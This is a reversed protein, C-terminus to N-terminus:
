RRALIAKLAENPEGPNDLLHYADGATLTAPLAYHEAEFKDVLISLAELEDGEHSGLPAGWLEELRKLAATLEAKSRIPTANM